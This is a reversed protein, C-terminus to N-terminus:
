LGVKRLNELAIKQDSTIRNPAVLRLELIHSGSIKSTKIGRNKIELKDGDFSGFPIKVKVDGHVTNAILDSGLLLDSYKVDKKQIINMGKRQLGKAKKVVVSVHLVGKQGLIHHGEGEFKLVNGSVIGSPIRLTRTIRSPKKGASCASCVEIDSDSSM